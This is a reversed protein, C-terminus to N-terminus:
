ELCSFGQIVSQLLSDRQLKLNFMQNDIEKPIPCSLPYFSTARYHSDLISHTTFCAIKLRTQNPLYPSSLIPPYLCFSVSCGFVLMTIRYKVSIHGSSSVCCVHLTESTRPFKLYRYRVRCEDLLWDKSRQEM